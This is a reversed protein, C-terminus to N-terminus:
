KAGREQAAMVISVFQDAADKWTSPTWGGLAAARERAAPSRTGDPMTLRKIQTVWEDPRHPSAFDVLEGGAELLAEATSAVVPTGYAISEIVSLGFGEALSPVLTLTANAYLNMLDADTASSIWEVRGNTRVAKQIARVTKASSWGRKGVIVLRLTPRDHLLEMIRLALPHNKRPEITSVMLLYPEDPVAVASRRALDVDTPTPLEAGLPIVGSAALPPLSQQARLGHVENLTFHSDAMVFTDGALHAQVWPAFANRSGVDFWEPNTLPLLDYAIFGCRVGAEILRPLLEARNIPNWWAAEVDVFVTGPVALEYLTPHACRASEADAPGRRRQAATIWQKLPPKEVAVRALRAIPAPLKDIRRAVPRPQSRLAEREADDIPRLGDCSACHRVLVVDLDPRGILEATLERTVRQIGTIRDSDLTNTVEILVRTPRSAPSLSPATESGESGTGARPDDTTM